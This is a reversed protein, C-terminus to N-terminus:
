ADAMGGLLAKTIGATDDASGVSRERAVDAASHFGFGYTVGLFPMGVQEAGRSDHASDGVMLSFSPNSDGLDVLCKRIIDTKTLEGAADAGYVIDTYHDFGFHRMLSDTLDQRKYTAVAISIGNNRAAEMCDFIGEYPIEDYVFGDSYIARFCAVMDELEDGTIGFTKTFSDRLPPGVFTHLVDSDPLDYGNERVVTKIAALVGPSTDLLTGDVDFVVSRYCPSSM